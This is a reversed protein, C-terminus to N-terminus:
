DKSKSTEIANRHAAFLAAIEKDAGLSAVENYCDLTLFVGMGAIALALEINKRSPLVEVDENDTQAALGVIDLHHVSSTVPYVFLYTKEHGVEEAMERLNAKCWDNKLWKKTAFQSEVKAYEAESEAILEPKIRAYRWCRPRWCWM